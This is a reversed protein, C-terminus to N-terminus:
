EWGQHAPNLDDQDHNSGQEWLEGSDNSPGRRTKWEFDGPNEITVEWGGDVYSGEVGGGWNTLEDTGGTFYVSEGWPVDIDVRLTVEPDVGEFGDEWGQHTPSTTDSAHNSGSEWIEGGEGAPGRRTKWEFDGPDDISVQWVGDEYSGEIGPGWNTLEDASGTFYVSENPGAPADIELTLDGNEDSGVQVTATASDDDTSVTLTRSGAVANAYTLSVSTSDGAGLAVASSDAADGDVTLEVSQEAYEDTGNEVTAEVVVDEGEEVDDTVSEIDVTVSGAPPESGGDEPAYMVWGNAPVTIEVEGNADTQVDPGHDTYDTLTEDSWSTEVTHTADYDAVSIGALLNSEREYIYTQQGAHRDILDGSALHTKVWILDRIEDDFLPDPGNQRVGSRYLHPTGPYSLIFADALTVEDGEPENEQVNPGVTDHNQSFTVAAGPDAHVLGSGSNSHLGSLDGGEIAGKLTAYLPFDFADMGTNVFQQLHNVDGEDWIEGVRWLGLDDCLPNIVNEFYQPWVHAAADFRIGDAGLEAIKTLYEIHLSQVEDDLTDLNPLALLPEDYQPDRIEGEYDYYPVSTFHREVDFQPWELEGGWPDQPADPNAMHNLVTDLVVDIDHEHLTEILSELEAETGLTGDFDRLDVPQYGAPPHPDRDGFPSTQGEYFGDSGQFALDDWDLKGIAPQPLWVATVGADDLVDVNQEIEGWETHFYQYIVPEGGDDTESDVALVSGSSSAGVLAAAATASLGKLVDRRGVRRSRKSADSRSEYKRPM